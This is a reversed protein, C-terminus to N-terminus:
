KARCVIMSNYGHIYATNMISSALDTDFQNSLTQIVILITRSQADPLRLTSQIFGLENMSKIVRKRTSERVSEPNNLIRSVTAISVQAHDAVDQMTVSKSM